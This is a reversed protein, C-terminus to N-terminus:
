RQLFERIKYPAVPTAAQIAVSCYVTGSNGGGNEIFSAGDFGKSGGSCDDATGYTDDAGAIDAVIVGGLLKGKGAGNILVNGEGVVWVLGAWTTTGDLVVTGTVELMGAFQYPGVACDGDCFIIQDPRANPIPCVNVDTPDVKAAPKLKYGDPCVVDAIQRLVEVTSRMNECVLLDPDIGDIPSQKIAPDNKDTLDSLVDQDALAGSQYIPNTGMGSEIDMEAPNGIAGVVPMYMGPTGPLGTGACDEGEYVKVKSTGSKFVPSPGLMTITAPPLGPIFVDFDVIAQVVEVSRDPAAGISTILVRQNTDDLPDVAMDIADNTLFTIYAGGAFPTFPRLPQDDGFGTFGTPNGDADFQVVLNAPNFDFVSKVPDGGAAAVLNDDFEDARNADWLTIRGDELGAEAIFFARKERLNAQSMTMESQTMFLLATGMGTLLVLVFIAMVLASGRSPRRDESAEHPQDLNM